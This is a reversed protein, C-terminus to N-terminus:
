KLIFICTIFLLPMSNKLLFKSSSNIILFRLATSDKFNENKKDSAEALQVILCDTLGSNKILIFDYNWFFIQLKAVSPDISTRHTRGQFSYLDIKNFFWAPETIKTWWIFGFKGITAILFHWAGEFNSFRMKCYRWLFKTAKIFIYKWLLM